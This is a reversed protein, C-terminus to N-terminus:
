KININVTKEKSKIVLNNNLFARIQYTYSKNNQTGKDTFEEQNNILGTIPKLRANTAEKRYVIYGKINGPRKIKWLLKVQKKGKQHLIKFNAFSLNNTTKSPLVAPFADSSNSKNGSTDFAIITYRYEIGPKAFLDTFVTIDKNIPSINLKKAKNTTDGKAQRYINYGALDIEFNQFWEVQLHNDTVTISKIIPKKPATVDPMGIVAFDSYGSRNYSTDIAVIKYYFKNRALKPLTDSFKNETIPDINILTYNNSSTKTITRYIYYGMLDSEQNAKWSINIIGTDATCIVNKPTEPPFVDTIDVPRVYSFAENGATDVSAVKYYLVGIDSATDNFIQFKKDILNSNVKVYDTDRKLSKYVNYGALDPSNTTEWFLQIHKGTVTAKLSAPPSPPTEDKIVAILEKSLKSEQGFYDIGVVNYYYVDGISMTDDNFNYKPYEGKDNKAVIIAQKTIRTKEKGKENSRYVYYGFFKNTNPKWAILPIYEKVDIKCSDPANIKEFNNYTITKSIGMTKGSANVIKYKYSKGKIATKDHYQIGLFDAFETYEVSKIMIILILFGNLDEPKGSISNAIPNFAEDKAILSQPIQAKKNIPTSNLKTWNEKDADTRFIDVSSNTYVHKGYWKVIIENNNQSVSSIVEVKEQAFSNIGRFLIIFILIYKIKKM